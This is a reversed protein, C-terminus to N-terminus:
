YEFCEEWELSEGQVYSAIQEAGYIHISQLLYLEVVGDWACSLQFFEDEPLEALNPVTQRHISRPPMISCKIEGDKYSMIFSPYGPEWMTSATRFEITEGLSYYLRCHYPETKM